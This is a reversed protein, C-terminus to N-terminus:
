CDMIEGRTVPTDEEANQRIWDLIPQEGTKIQRQVDDFSIKGETTRAEDKRLDIINWLERSAVAHLLPLSGLRPAIGRIRLLGNAARWVFL